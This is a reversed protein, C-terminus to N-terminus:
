PYNQMCHGKWIKQKQATTFFHHSHHLTGHTNGSSEKKLTTMRWQSLSLICWICVKNAAISLRWCLNLFQEFHWYICGSIIECQRLDKKLFKCLFIHRSYCERNLSGTSFWRYVQFSFSSVYFYASKAKRCSKETKTRKLEMWLIVCLSYLLYCLNQKLLRKRKLQGCLFNKLWVSTLTSFLSVNTFYWNLFNVRRYKNVFVESLYIKVSVM